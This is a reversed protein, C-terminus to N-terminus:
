KKHLPVYELFRGAYKEKFEGEDIVIEGNIILYYVGEAIKKPEECTATDKFTDEDFVVIDAYMGEKILGRSPIRFRKACFGTLKYVAEELSLLKEEKVYKRFIRAVAGAARPHPEDFLPSNTSITAFPKKLLAKINEESEDELFIEVEGEEEIFLGFLLEFVDNYENMNKLVDKLTLGKMWDYSENKTKYIRVSSILTEKGSKEMEKKLAEQWWREKLMAAMKRTGYARFWSPFLADLKTYSFSYPVIDYSLDMGLKTDQEIKYLLTELKYWNHQGKLRLHSIHTRVGTIRAINLVEDVAGLVEDGESRLHVCFIAGFTAVVDCLEMIEFPKTFTGVGRELCCSLGFAGERLAEDLMEKMQDMDQKQLIKDKYGLSTSARLNEQGVLVCLNIPLRHNNLCRKYAEFSSWSGNICLQQSLAFIRWKADERCPALSFGCNGCIQTTIGQYLKEEQTEQLFQAFDAHSHCDFFGPAAVLGNAHIVRKARERLRGIQTIRDKAIGIDANYSAKSTGDVIKANKILIDLM